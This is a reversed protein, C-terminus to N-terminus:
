LLNVLWLVYPGGVAEARLARTYRPHQGPGVLTAAGWGTPKVLLLLLALGFNDSNGFVLLGVVCLVHLRLPGEVAFVFVVM